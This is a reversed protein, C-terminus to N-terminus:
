ATQRRPSRRNWRCPRRRCRQRRWQRGHQRSPVPERGGSPRRIQWCWHLVSPPIILHSGVFGLAELEVIGALADDDVRDAADLAVQPHFHVEVVLVDDAVGHGGAGHPATQFDDELAAIRAVGPGEGFADATHTGAGM